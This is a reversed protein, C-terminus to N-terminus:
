DAGHLVVVYKNNKFIAIWHKWPLYWFKCKEEEFVIWVICLLKFINSIHHFILWDLGKRKLTFFIARRKGYIVLVRVNVACKYVYVPITYDIAQNKTNYLHNQEYDVGVQVPSNNTENMEISEADTPLKKKKKEKIALLLLM